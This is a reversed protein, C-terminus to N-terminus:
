LATWLSVQSLPIIVAAVILNAQTRTMGQRAFIQMLSEASTLHLLAPVLVIALYVTCYTALRGRYGYAASAIDDFGKAKPVRQGLRSFMVGSFAVAGGMAALVASLVWM